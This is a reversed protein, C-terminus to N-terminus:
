RASQFVFLVLAWVVRLVLFALFGLVVGKRNTAFAICVLCVAVLATFLFPRGNSQQLTFSLCFALVGCLCVIVGLFIDKRSPETDVMQM